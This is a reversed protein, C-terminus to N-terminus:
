AKEFQANKCKKNKKYKTYIFRIIKYLGAVVFQICRGLFLVFYELGCFWSCIHNPFMELISHIHYNWVYIDIFLSIFWLLFLSINFKLVNMKSNLIVKKDTKYYLILGIILLGIFLGFCDTLEDLLITLSWTVVQLITVFSLASFFEKM